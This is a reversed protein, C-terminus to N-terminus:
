RIVLAGHVWPASKSAVAAPDNANADHRWGALTAAPQAIGVSGLVPCFWCQLAAVSAPTSADTRIGVSGRGVTAEFLAGQTWLTGKPMGTTGGTYLISLDDPDPEISPRKPSSSALALEYDLAGDLLANGSGDAVQVLLPQRRLLPLVERLTPAFCAHFVLAATSADNLLYALEDTVYRYNVNFPAARALDAGFTAELYEHGNHLYLGVHDQGSEWNKLESRARRITVDHSLLLNAFRTAREDVERYSLRKRSSVLCPRDPAADAIAAFLEGHNFM